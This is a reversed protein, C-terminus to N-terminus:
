SSALIFQVSISQVEEVSVDDGYVEVAKVKCFRFEVQMSCYGEMEGGLHM